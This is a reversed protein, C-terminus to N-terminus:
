SVKKGFFCFKFFSVFVEKKEVKKFSSLFKEFLYFNFDFYERLYFNLKFFIGKFLDYYKENEKQLNLFKFNYFM